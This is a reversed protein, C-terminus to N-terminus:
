EYVVKLDAGVRQAEKEMEVKLLRVFPAMEGSIKLVITTTKGQATNLLSALAAMFQQMVDKMAQASVQYLKDEPAVIEGQHRNDGIMALQPTNARVFGGEALRPIHVEPVTSLSIGFSNAGVLPVWEPIDVHITNLAGIMANIGRIIGNAMSEACSLISNISDKVFGCTGEIIGSVSDRIGNFINTFVTKIANLITTIISKLLNLTNRVKGVLSTFLNAIFNVAAGFVGKIADLIGNFIQKVGDWAKEWDGTFVGVIFDIIGSCVEIIGQIAAAIASVFLEVKTWLWQIKEAIQAAFVEAIWAVFPSIFEWLMSVAEVAKGAFELFANILPQIYEDVLASFREAIWGLVPALYINYADLVGAFVTSFGSIMRDFAPKLYEEYVQLIKSFTNRVLDHISGLIGDLPALTNELAEKIKDRNEIIPTAIGSVVNAGFQLALESLGVFGDAFIGILHETCGKAADGSFVDFIGAAAEGFEGTLEAIEGSIRFVSILREKLYGQSSQLYDAFGGLLNDAVTVGIGAFSGSVKGLGLAFSDLMEEASAAVEADTFISRITKGIEQVQRRLTEAKEGSQGFGLEFGQRFLGGLEKWGALLADTGVAAAQLVGTDVSPVQFADAGYGGSSSGGSDGGTDEDRGRVNMDDFAFLGKMKKASAAAATGIGKAAAAAKDAAAATAQMQGAADGMGKKGSLMETFAKFANALTMLRGVLTNIAKIVPTLVNILGQGIAAKLSDFQLKLVRVQNAWGDSTRMFDGAAGTLQEQVFRYRLAVKEAETMRATTKGFGNALAYSDLATQTMVIGLDKLSETEGTFVSKLKTYAEEQTINYFSAVDGALGTLAASMDYAAEESFGFAKAMAGFTGVFQKAMTESLGFSTAAKGAFEEVQRTMSPFTVDVVNQVEQLDSGLNLCESGFDILKKVSFAAAFAIAAKKAVTSFSGSFSEKIDEATQDAQDSMHVMDKRAKKSSKGSEREIHSWAKTMAESMSDGEKRYIAAIASAKAKASRTTDNLIAQIDANSAKVAEKASNGAKIFGGTIKEEIQHCYDKIETMMKSGDCKLEFAIGEVVSM